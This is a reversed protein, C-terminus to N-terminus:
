SNRQVTGSKFITLQSGDSATLKIFGNVPDVIDVVYDLAANCKWSAWYDFVRELTILDRVQDGCGEGLTLLVNYSAIRFKEILTM